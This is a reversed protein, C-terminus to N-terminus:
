KDSGPYDIKSTILVSDETPNRNIYSTMERHHYKFVDSYMELGDKFGAKYNWLLRYIQYMKVLVLYCLVLSICSIILKFM